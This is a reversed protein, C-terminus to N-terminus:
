QQQGAVRGPAPPLMPVGRLLADLEGRHFADMVAERGGDKWTLSVSGTAKGGPIRVVGPILEGTTKDVIQGTAKDYTADKLKAALFAPRARIIVEAEGCEEAYATFAEEDGVQYKDKAVSVTHTAVAIGGVKVDVSKIGSEPDEYANILPVKVAAAKVDIAPVVTDKFLKAFASLLATDGLSLAPEPHTAADDFSM